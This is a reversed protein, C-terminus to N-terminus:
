TVTLFDSDRGPIFMDASSTCSGSAGIITKDSAPRVRTDGTLQGSVIIILPEELAAAEVLADVTTVTVTDGGAGGTTGGNQTCYGVSCAETSQRKFVSDRSEVPSGVSLTASFTAILCSLRM